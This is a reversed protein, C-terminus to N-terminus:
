YWREKVRREIRKTSLISTSRSSNSYTKNWMKRINKKLPEGEFNSLGITKVKGEKYAKEM